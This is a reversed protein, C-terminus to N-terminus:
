RRTRARRTRRGQRDDPGRLRRAKLVELGGDLIREARGDVPRGPGAGPAPEAAESLRHAGAADGPRHGDRRAEELAVEGRVRLDGLLPVSPRSSTTPTTSGRRRRVVLPAVPLRRRSRTRSSGRTTRADDKIADALFKVGFGVHRSEDRNVATFGQVSARSGTRAGEAVPICSARRRHARAHGRDRAHVRHRRAGALRLRSPDKRLDSPARRPPHRRVADELRREHVSAPARRPERSITTPRRASCRATSATSSSARAQAEDSIQTALFISRGGEAAGRDRVPAARHHGAGRRPLVRSLGFTLFKREEETIM